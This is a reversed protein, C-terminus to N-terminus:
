GLRSQFEHVARYVTEAGRRRVVVCPVRAAPDRGPGAGTFVETGAAAEMRLTFRAGDREWRVWWAEDTHAAAVERIHQCGAGDGLAGARAEMKLSCAVAGPAHFTWDYVHPTESRCEFRDEVRGKRLTVTRRLSVGPYAGDASAALTTEGDRESWEELKGDANGQLQQDVAVTNHAITSRYWEQHLPVGYNISGPDLGWPRGAGWTVINLKDPHGHGGGHMGFREAVAVGGGRLMAYGAARLITSEEPIMPGSPVAEAGYLLAEASDRRGRAALRGYAPTKWRAFALEYLPGAALANGGSSDNFGPADGDPLALALPADYLTRYRETYLDTGALRAAEALPWLGEMTYHHYGLSGEFWLGDDTVGRAIQVRFGREPDDIAEGALEDSGTAFGALGVASNKWCQINHIGMRHARITEAAARLLDREVRERDAAPFSERALAYGFAVPILWVAEDLTQAMIRGGGVKEEDRTNHLRYAGYRAAYGLLLERARRAFEARGTFRWALALDRIARSNRSHVWYLAVADYPDGRYVAGCVPCRHETPSVTKLTAGDKKCSYWHPWQGGREPLDVPASAAKEAGTVLARLAAGAWAQRAAKDKAATIGAEDTLLWGRAGAARALPAAGVALFDRRRM